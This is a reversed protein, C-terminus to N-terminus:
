KELYYVPLYIVFLYCIFLLQLAPPKAAQAKNSQYQQKDNISNSHLIGNNISTVSSDKVGRELVRSKLLSYQNPFIRIHVKYYYRDFTFRRNRRPKAYNLPGKHLRLARTRALITM